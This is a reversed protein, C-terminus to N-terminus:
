RAGQGGFKEQAPHRLLARGCGCSLGGSRNRRRREAMKEADPGRGTEVAGIALAGTESVSVSELANLDIRIDTFGSGPADPDAIGILFVAHIGISAALGIRMSDSLHM